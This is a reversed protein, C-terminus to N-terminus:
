ASQGDVILKQYNLDQRAKAPGTVRKSRWGFASMMEESLTGGMSQQVYKGVNVLNKFSHRNGGTALILSKPSSPHPGLIWADDFTSLSSCSHSKQFKKKSLQPFWVDMLIHYAKYNPKPLSNLPGHPDMIDPAVRTNYLLIDKCWFTVKKLIVSNVVYYYLSTPHYYEPFFTKTPTSYFGPVAQLEHM